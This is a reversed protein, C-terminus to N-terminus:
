TRGLFFAYRCCKDVPSGFYWRNAKIIWLKICLLFLILLHLGEKLPELIMITRQGSAIM